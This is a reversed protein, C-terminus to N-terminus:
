RKRLLQFGDDVDRAEWGLAEIAARLRDAESYDRAARAAQRQRALDVV